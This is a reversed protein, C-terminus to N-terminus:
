TRISGTNFVIGCDNICPKSYFIEKEHVAFIPMSIYFDM